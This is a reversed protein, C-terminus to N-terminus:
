PGRCGLPGKGGTIRAMRLESESMFGAAEAFAICEDFHSENGDSCYADCAAKGGRGACAPPKVGKRLAVLVKEAEAREDDKMFGAKLAFDMCEEMREANGCYEDCERKNRCDGPFKTGSKIAAQVQRVEALEEEPILDNEEAFAVCEDIRSIDGECYEKCSDASTCGGPGEGGAAEFRRAQALEEDSMLGHEEAFDLCPSLNEPEECFERCNEKDTCDGLEPIPYTFDDPSQAVAVGVSVLAVGVALAASLALWRNTTM